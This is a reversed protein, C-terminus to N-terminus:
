FPHILIILRIRFSISFSANFVANRFSALILIEALQSTNAMDTATVPEQEWMILCFRYESEPIKPISM